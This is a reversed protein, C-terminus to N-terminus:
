ESVVHTTARTSPLTAGQCRGEIFQVRGGLEPSEHLSESAFRLMAASGDIAPVTSHRPRRAGLRLVTDGPGRASASCRALRCNTSFERRSIASSASTPSPSLRGDRLRRPRGRGRDLVQRAELSQHPEAVEAADARAKM